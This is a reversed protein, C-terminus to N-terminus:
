VEQKYKRGQWTNGAYLAKDIDNIVTGKRRSWDPALLEEAMGDGTLRAVVMDPPLLELAEVVTRIYDEREMPVYDGQLYMEGLPTGRLVHLLHLKVQHPHLDAVARVSDLMRDRDEGPLGFILHICTVTRPSVARLRTYGEVFDAMSHGRRIRAATSDHATQLGLEVTLVTRGSLDALYDLVEPPLCDARTAINMGVVGPFTLVQEFKERLIPLPAYTNTYAQFYPICADVPWKASLAARTRDYQERLPVTAPQAFDGSGRPSCYICGGYGCRGDRNPCTFGGDLPIKACKRGFTHRLWYEYTYYRKNSDTYFFPNSYAQTPRKM